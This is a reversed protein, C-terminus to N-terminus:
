LGGIGYMPNIGGYPSWTPFSMKMEPIVRPVSLNVTFMCSLGAPPLSMAKWKSTLNLQPFLLILSTTRFEMLPFLQPDSSLCLGKKGKLGWALKSRIIRQSAWTNLTATSPFCKMSNWCRSWGKPRNWYRLMVPSMLTVCIRYWYVTCLINVDSLFLLCKWFSFALLISPWSFQSTYWRNMIILFQQKM